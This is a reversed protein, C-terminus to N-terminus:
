EIIIFFLLLTLYSSSHKGFFFTAVQINRSSIKTSAKEQQFPCILNFCEFPFLSAKITINTKM